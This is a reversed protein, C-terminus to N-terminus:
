VCYIVVVCVVCLLVRGLVFFVGVFVWAYVFVHLSVVYRLSLYVFCFLVFVAFLCCLM